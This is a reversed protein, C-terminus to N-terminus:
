QQRSTPRSGNRCSARELDDVAHTLAQRVGVGFPADMGIELGSINDQGLRALDLNQIEPKGM